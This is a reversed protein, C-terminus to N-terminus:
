GYMALAVVPLMVLVVVVVLVGIVVKCGIIAILAARPADRM